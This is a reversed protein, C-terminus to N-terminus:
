AGNPPTEFMPLTYPQALRQRAIDVYEPTIDGCIYRRGTNRAAVATTGSGCFPDLVVDGSRSSSKVIHEMLVIPKETPHKGPYSQVTRFTWVDTYPVFQTVNFPRRLDEYERRLDEYERRLYDGGNISNLFKRMKEYQEATPMNYGILWNSVCGTLQGTRSPFLAAIDRRTVGAKDFESQLYDGFISGKATECADWYTANGDILCNQFPKDAQIQEAFVIAESAPFFARMSSKNFMEAKTSYRPKQWTIRNLVNFLTSVLVEVRAAMRPSAFVYLSGNPKLVRRMEILHLRLWELFDSDSNWQNDWYHEKVGNYPPDTAILDVSEEPLARLLELADMHHVVDLLPTGDVNLVTTM